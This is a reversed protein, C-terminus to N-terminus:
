LADGLRRAEGGVRSTLGTVAVLLLGTALAVETSVQRPRPAPISPRGLPAAPVAAQQPPSTPAPPPAVPPTSPPSAPVKAAPTVRRRLAPAARSRDAPASTTTASTVPAASSPAPAPTPRRFVQSVWILGHHHVVGVGIETLRPSLIERRHTDSEMFAEHIADVTDGKGVNEGVIDWNQVQERLNPNHYLRGEGAMRAAHARAVEALDPAHSYPHLGATARERAILDSFSTEAAAANTPSTEARAAWGPLLATVVVAVVALM